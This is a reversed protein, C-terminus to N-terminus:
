CVELEKAMKYYMFSEEMSSSKRYAHPVQSVILGLTSIVFFVDNLQTLVTDRDLISEVPVLLEHHVGKSLASYLRTLKSNIKEVLGKADTQVLESYWGGVNQEEGEDQVKQAIEFLVLQKQYPGLIARSPDKLSKEGWLDSVSKDIVDGQWRIASINPRSLEYGPQSQRGKIVLIRFPDLRALFATMSLELISRGLYPGYLSIKSDPMEPLESIECIIKEISDSLHKLIVDIDIESKFDYGCILRQLCTNKDIITQEM